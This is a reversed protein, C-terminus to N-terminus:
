GTSEVRGSCGAGQGARAARDAGAPAGRALKPLDHTSSLTEGLRNM